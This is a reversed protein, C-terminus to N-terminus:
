NLAAFLYAVYAVVLGFTVAPYGVQMARMMRPALLTRPFLDEATKRPGMISSEVHVMGKDQKPSVKSAEEGRAVVDVVTQLILISFILGIAGFMWVDLAKFYSNRPLNSSVQSLLTTLVLMATLAIVVRVQLNSLPYFTTLYAIIVFFCSPTYVTLIAFGYRRRFRVIAQLASYRTHNAPRTVISVISYELLQRSGSYTVGKGDRVMQLREKRASTLLFVFNCEQTDFPYLTLDLSCRYTASYKRSAVVPNEEGGFFDVERAHTHDGPRAEGHRLVLGKTEEDLLTHANGKANSFSVQPCVLECYSTHRNLSELRKSGM